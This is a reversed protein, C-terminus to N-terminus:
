RRASRPLGSPSWAPADSTVTLQATTRKKPMEIESEERDYMTHTTVLSELRAPNLGRQAFRQLLREMRQEATSKIVWISTMPAWARFQHCTLALRVGDFVTVDREVAACKMLEFIHSAPFHALFTPGIDTRMTCRIGVTALVVADCFKGRLWIEHSPAAHAVFEIRLTLL